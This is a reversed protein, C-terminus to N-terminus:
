SPLEIIRLTPLGIPQSNIGTANCTFSMGGTNTGGKIVLAVNMSTTIESDLILARAVRRGQVTEFGHSFNICLRASQGIYTSTDINYFQLEATSSKGGAVAGLSGELYYSSGSPLNIVTGLAAMTASTAQTGVVSWSIRDPNYSTNSDYQRWVDAVLESHSKRAATYTM